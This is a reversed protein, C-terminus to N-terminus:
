GTQCVGGGISGAVTGTNNTYAFTEGTQPPAQLYPNTGSLLETINVGLGSPSTTDGGQAPYKSNTVYYGDVATQIAETDSQCAATQANGKVGTVNIVVIAALVGLIAIVVLLEILTFGGQGRRRRRAVRKYLNDM